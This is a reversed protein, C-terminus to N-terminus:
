QFSASLTDWQARRLKLDPNADIITKARSLHDQASKLDTAKLLEALKMHGGSAWVDKTYSAETTDSELSDLSDQAGQLADTQGNKYECLYLHIKMDNLVAPRAHLPNPNQEQASVAKKYAEIAQPLEGLSEHAKALNFYPLAISQPDNSKEALEAASMAAHKALILFNSDSTKEFLHRLTLFRSGQLESFGVADHESSYLLTAEDILQLAELFNGSERAHEAKGHVDRGKQQM